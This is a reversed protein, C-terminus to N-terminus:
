TFNRKDIKIFIKLGKPLYFVATNIGDIKQTYPIQINKNVVNLPQEM